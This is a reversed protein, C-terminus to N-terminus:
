TGPARLDALRRAHRRRSGGPRTRRHVSRDGFTDDDGGVQLTLAEDPWSSWRYFQLYGIPARDLEIVCATTPDEGRARPGYHDRVTDLDPAPDDPDWWEHVHPRGRRRVILGYDADDDRMTRVTLDGNAAILPM